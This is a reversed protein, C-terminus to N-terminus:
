FPLLPQPLATIFIKPASSALVEYGHLETYWTAGEAGAFVGVFLVEEGSAGLSLTVAGGAHWVCPAM